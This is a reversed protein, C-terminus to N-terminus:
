LLLFIIKILIICIPLISVNIGNKKLYIQYIIYKLYEIHNFLINYM